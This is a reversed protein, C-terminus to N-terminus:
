YFVGVVKFVFCFYYFVPTAEKSSHILHNVMCSDYVHCRFSSIYDLFGKNGSTGVEVRVPFVSVIACSNIKPTHESFSRKIMHIHFCSRKFQGWKLFGELHNGDMQEWFKQKTKFLFYVLPAICLGDRFLESFQWLPSASFVTGECSSLQVVKPPKWRKKIVAHLTHRNRTVQLQTFPQTKHQCAFSFGVM